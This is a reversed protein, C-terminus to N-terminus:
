NAGKLRYVKCKNVNPWPDSAPASCYKIEFHYYYDGQYIFEPIGMFELLLDGTAVQKLVIRPTTIDIERSDAVYVQGDLLVIEGDSVPGIRLVEYGEPIGEIRLPKIIM